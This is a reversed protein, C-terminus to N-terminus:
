GYWSRGAAICIWAWSRGATMRQRWQPRGIVQHLRISRLKWCGGPLPLSREKMADLPTMGPGPLTGRDEGDDLLSRKVVAPTRPRRLAGPAVLLIPQSEQRLTTLPPDPFGPYMEEVPPAFVVDVGEAAAVALDGDLDRPYRALDENAGFQLPNVFLTTAVVDCEDRARAMLSAHGAHLYGMTPVLGVAKSAGREADLAKRFADITDIVQM